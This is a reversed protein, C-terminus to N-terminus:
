TQDEFSAKREDVKEESLQREAEATTHISTMFQGIRAQGRAEPRQCNFRRGRLLAARAADIREWLAVARAEALVPERRAPRVAGHRGAAELALEGVALM